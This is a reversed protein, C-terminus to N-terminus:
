TKPVSPSPAAAQATPKAWEEVLAEIAATWITQVQEPTFSFLKGLRDLFLPPPKDALAKLLEVRASQFLPTLFEKLKPALLKILADGDFSPLNM